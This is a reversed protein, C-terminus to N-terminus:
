NPVQESVKPGCPATFRPMTGGSSLMRPNRGKGRPGCLGIRGRVRPQRQHHGSHSRHRGGCRLHIAAGCRGNCSQRPCPARQVALGVLQYNTLWAQEAQTPTRVSDFYVALTGGARAPTTAHGDAFPVSWRARLGEQRALPRYAVMFPHTEIDAVWVPQGTFAATGCAGEGDAPVMGNVAQNVSEPM